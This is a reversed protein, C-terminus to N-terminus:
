TREFQANIKAICSDNQFITIRGLVQSAEIFWSLEFKLPREPPHMQLFKVQRAGMLRLPIGTAATLLETAVELLCVGPTVPQGPFHGAYISHAPNFSVIYHCTTETHSLLEMTYLGSILM